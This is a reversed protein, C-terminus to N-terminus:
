RDSQHQKIARINNPTLQNALLQSVADCFLVVGHTGANAQMEERLLAAVDDHPQGRGRARDDQICKPHRAAKKM